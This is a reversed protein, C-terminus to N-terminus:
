AGKPKPLYAALEAPDTHEVTFAGVTPDTLTIYFVPAGNRCLVGIAAHTAAALLCAETMTMTTM